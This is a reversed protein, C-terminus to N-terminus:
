LMDPLTKEKKEMLIYMNRTMYAHNNTMSLNEKKESIFNCNEYNRENIDKMAIWLTTSSVNSHM